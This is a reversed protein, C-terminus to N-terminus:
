VVRTESWVCTWEYIYISMLGNVWNNERELRAAAVSRLLNSINDDSSLKYKENAPWTELTRCNFSFKAAKMESQIVEADNSAQKVQNFLSGSLM